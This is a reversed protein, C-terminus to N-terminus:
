ACAWLKQLLGLLQLGDATKKLINSEGRYWNETKINGGDLGACDLLLGIVQIVVVGKLRRYFVM